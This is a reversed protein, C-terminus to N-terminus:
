VREIKFEEGLVSSSSGSSGSSDNISNGSSSRIGQLLEKFREYSPSSPQEQQQQQQRQLAELLLPFGGARAISALSHLTQWDCLHLQSAAQNQLREALSDERSIRIRQLASLASVCGTSDLHKVRPRLHLLLDATLSTSFQPFKSISNLLAATQQATLKSLHESVRSAAATAAAAAVAAFGERRQLRSLAALALCCGRADLQQLLLMLVAAREQKQQGHPLDQQHQQQGQWQGEKLGEAQQQQEKPYRLAKEICKDLSQRILELGEVSAQQQQQQRQHHHDVVQQQQQQQSQLQDQQPQHLLIRRLSLEEEHFRSLANLLLAFSQPNAEGPDRLTSDLLDGAAVLIRPHLVGAAALANLAFALQFFRCEKFVEPESLRDAFLRFLRTDLCELGSLAQLIACLDRAEGEAVLTKLNANRKFAVAFFAAPRWSVRLCASSIRALHKLSLSPLVMEARLGQSQAKSQQFLMQSSPRLEVQKIKIRAILQAWTNQDYPGRAAVAEAVRCLRGASMKRWSRVLQKVSWPIGALTEFSVPQQEESDRQPKSSRCVDMRYGKKQCSGGSSRGSSSSSSSVKNSSTSSSSASTSNASSASISSTDTSSAGISSSNTRSSSTTSCFFLRGNKGAAAMAVRSSSCDHADSFIQLALLPRRRHPCRAPAEASAKILGHRFAVFDATAAAAAAATKVAARGGVQIM